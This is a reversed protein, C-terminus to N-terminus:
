FQNFGRYRFAQLGPAFSSEDKVNESFRDHYFCTIHSRMLLVSISAWGMLEHTAPSSFHVTELGIM